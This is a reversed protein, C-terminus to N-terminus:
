EDDGDDTQGKLRKPDVSKLKKKPAGTKLDKATVTEFLDNAKEGLITCATAPKFANSSLASTFADLDGGTETLLGEVTRRVDRCKRTTSTGVYYRKEGDEIEGNAEIWKIAAEEFRHNIARSIEGLKQKFAMAAMVEEKSAVGDEILAIAEDCKQIPNLESV